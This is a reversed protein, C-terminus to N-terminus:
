ALLIEKPGLYNEYMYTAYLKTPKTHRDIM